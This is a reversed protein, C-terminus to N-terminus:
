LPWQTATSLIIGSSTLEFMFVYFPRCPPLFHLKKALVPSSLEPVVALDPATPVIQIPILYANASMSIDSTKRHQCIELRGRDRTLSQPGLGCGVSTLAVSVECLLAFYAKWLPIFNQFLAQSCQPSLSSVAETCATV